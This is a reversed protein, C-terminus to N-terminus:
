AWTAPASPSRNPGNSHGDLGPKAIFFTLRRGLKKSAADVKACLWSANTTARHAAAAVGTPARYEGFAMRLEAAWEGTTVGAKACRHLAAMINVNEKAAKALAFLADAVKKNDRAERWARLRKIQDREASEDVVVFNSNGATLPSPETETHGSNVGVRIEAGNRDSRGRRM